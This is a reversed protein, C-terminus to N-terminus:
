DRDTLFIQLPEQGTHEKVYLPYPYDPSLVVELETNGSKASRISLRQGKVGAIEEVGDCAYIFLPKGGEKAVGDYTQGVEFRQRDGIIARIPGMLILNEIKEGRIADAAKDAGSGSSHFGDTESEIVSPSGSQMVYALRYTGDRPQDGATWQVGYTAHM